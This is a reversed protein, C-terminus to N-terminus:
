VIWKSIVQTISNFVILRLRNNDILLQGIPEEFLDTFIEDAPM